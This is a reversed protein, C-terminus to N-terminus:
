RKQNEDFAGAAEGEYLGGLVEADGDQDDNAEVCQMRVILAAVSCWTLAVVADTAVFKKNGVIPTETLM